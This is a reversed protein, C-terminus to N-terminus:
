ARPERRTKQGGWISRRSCSKTAPRRWVGGLTRRHPGLGVVGIKVKGGTVSAARGAGALSGFALAVAAAGAAKLFERRQYTTHKM